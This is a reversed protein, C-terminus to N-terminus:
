RRRDHSRRGANRSFAKTHRHQGDAAPACKSPEVILEAVPTNPTRTAESVNGPFSVLAYTNGKGMIAITLAQGTLSCLRWAANLSENATPSTLPMIKRAQEWTLVGTVTPILKGEHKAILADIDAEAQGIAIAFQRGHFDRVDAVVGVPNSIGSLHMQRILDGETRQLFDRRDLFADASMGQHASLINQRYNM